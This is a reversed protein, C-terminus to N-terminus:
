LTNLTQNQFHCLRSWDLSMQESSPSCINGPAEHDAFPVVLWWRGDVMWGLTWAPM